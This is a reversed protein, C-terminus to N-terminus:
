KEGSWVGLGQYMLGRNTRKKEFNRKAIEAACINNALYREGQQQCFQVYANYLAKGSVSYEKGVICRESLFRGVQDSEQRYDLTARVM